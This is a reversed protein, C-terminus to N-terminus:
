AGSRLDALEAALHDLRAIHLREARVLGAALDVAEVLGALAGSRDLGLPDIRLVTLARHQVARGLGVQAAALWADPDAVLDPGGGVGLVVVARGDPPVDVALVPGGAPAPVSLHTLGAHRAATALDAVAVDGDDLLRAGLVPAGHSALGAADALADVAPLLAAAEHGTFWLRDLLAPDTGPPLFWTSPVRRRDFLDLVAAVAGPSATAEAVDVALALAAPRREPGWPGSPPLPPASVVVM